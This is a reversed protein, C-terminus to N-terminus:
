DIFPRRSANGRPEVRRRTQRRPSAREMLVAIVVAFVFASVFFIFSDSTVDIRALGM